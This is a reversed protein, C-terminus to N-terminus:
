PQEDLVDNAGSEEICGIATGGGAALAHRIGEVQEYQDTAVTMLIEPGDGRRRGGAAVTISRQAIGRRALQNRLKEVTPEDAALATVHYHM